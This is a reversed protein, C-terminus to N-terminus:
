ANVALQMPEPMSALARFEVASACGTTALRTAWYQAEESDKCDILYYGGLIEKTEAFPGDTFTVKGSASRATVATTVPLLPSAGKFVGRSQADNIIGCHVDIQRQLEEPASETMTKGNTYMLFMYDM